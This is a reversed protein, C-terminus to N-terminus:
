SYIIIKDQSINYFESLRQKLLSVKSNNQIEDVQANGNQLNNIDIKQINIKEVESVEKDNKDKANYQEKSVTLQIKTITGFEESDENTDIVIDTSIPYLEQELVFTEIDKKIKATYESIINDSSAQEYKLENQLKKIDSTQIINKSLESLSINNPLINLIPEVCIAVMVIGCIYKVYKEYKDSPVLHLVINSLISVIFIQRCWIIIKDM